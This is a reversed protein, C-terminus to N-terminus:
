FLNQNQMIEEVKDAIQSPPLKQKGLQNKIENSVRNYYDIKAKVAESETEDEQSDRNLLWYLGGTAAGGAAGIAAMAKILEPTTAGAMGILKPLLSASKNVVGDKFDDGKQVEYETAVKGLAMLVADSYKDLEPLWNASKSLEKLFHYEFDYKRGAEDFVDSAIKCVMKQLAGYNAEKHNGITDLYGSIACLEKDTKNNVAAALKVGLNFFKSNTM